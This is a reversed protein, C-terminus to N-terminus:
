YFSLSIVELELQSGRVDNLSMTDLVSTETAQLVILQEQCQWASIQGMRPASLVEM